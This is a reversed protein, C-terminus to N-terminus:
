LNAGRIIMASSDYGLILIELKLELSNLLSPAMAHIVMAKVILQCRSGLSELSELLNARPNLV